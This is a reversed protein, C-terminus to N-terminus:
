LNPGVNKLMELYSAGTVTKKPGVVDFFPGIVGEKGIAAWVTLRKPFQEQETIAEKPPKVDWFRYNQSNVYGTLHFHAEDSFM